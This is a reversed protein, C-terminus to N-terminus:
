VQDSIRMENQSKPHTAGLSIDFFEEIRKGDDDCCVAIPNEPTHTKAFFEMALRAMDYMVPLDSGKRDISPEQNEWFQMVGYDGWIYLWYLHLWGDERLEFSARIEVEDM